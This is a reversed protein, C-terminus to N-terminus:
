RFNSYEEEQQEIATQIEDPYAQAYVWVNVLDTANLQPLRKEFILM